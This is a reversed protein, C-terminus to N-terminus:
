FLHIYEADERTATVLIEFLEKVAEDENDLTTIRESATEVDLFVDSDSGSAVCINEAADLVADSAHQVYITTKM